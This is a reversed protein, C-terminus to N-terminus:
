GKRIRLRGAEIVALKGKLQSVIEAQVVPSELIILVTTATAKPPLRLVILGPYEGPPYNRIDSFGLDATLLCLGQKQAYAAIKTDDAGRLGIDRVDLVEHGYRRLLTGVSRPLDKDILFRM